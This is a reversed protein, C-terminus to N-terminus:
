LERKIKTLQFITEKVKKLKVAVVEKLSKNKVRYWKEDFSDFEIMVLIFALFKTSFYQINLSPMFYSVLDHLLLSDLMFTLIICLLYQIVKSVFGERTKRSTVVERVVKNEKIAEHKAAWRGALTDVSIAILVVSISLYIPQLWMVTFSIAAFFHPKVMDTLQQVFEVVYEFFNKM